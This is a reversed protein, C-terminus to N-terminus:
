ESETRASEIDGVGRKQSVTSSRRCRLLCPVQYWRRHRVSRTDAERARAIGSGMTAHTGRVQQQNVDRHQSKVPGGCFDSTGSVRM